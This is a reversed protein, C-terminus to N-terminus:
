REITILMRENKDNDHIDAVVGELNEEQILQVVEAVDIGDKELEAKLGAPLLKAAVEAVALPITIEKSPKEEEGKYIFVKVLGGKPLSLGDAQSMGSCFLTLSLVLMAIYCAVRTFPALSRLTQM